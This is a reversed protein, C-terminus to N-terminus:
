VHKWTERKIIKCIVTRYVGYEKALMEQTYIRPIYKARIERVQFEKLKSAGQKEGKAPNLLGNISAHQM